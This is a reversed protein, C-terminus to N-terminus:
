RSAETLVPLRFNELVTVTDTRTATIRVTHVGGCLRATESAEFRWSVIGRSPYTVSSPTSATLRPSRCGPPYVAVTVTAGTMDLLVGNEDKVQIEDQWTEGAYIPDTRRTRYAM